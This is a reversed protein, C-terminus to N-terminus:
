SVGPYEWVGHLFGFDLGGCQEAIRGHTYLILRQFTKGGTRHTEWGRTMLCPVLRVQTGRSCVHYYERQARHMMELVVIVGHKYCLNDGSM